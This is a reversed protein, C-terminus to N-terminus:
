AQDLLRVRIGEQSLRRALNYIGQWAASVFVPEQDAQRLYIRYGKKELDVRQIDHFSFQRRVRGYRRVCLNRGSVQLDHMGKVPELILYIGAALAAAMLIPLLPTRFATTFVQVALIAFLVLDLAGMWAYRLSPHVTFQQLSDTKPDMGRSSIWGLLIGCIVIAVFATVLMTRYMDTDYCALCAPFACLVGCCFLLDPM